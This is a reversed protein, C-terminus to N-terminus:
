ITDSEARNNIYSRALTIEIEQLGDIINKIDSLRTVRQEQVRWIIDRVKIGSRDSPSGSRVKTVVLFPDASENNRKKLSLGLSEDPARTVIVIEKNSVCHRDTHYTNFEYIIRRVECQATRQGQIAHKIDSVSHIKVSNIKLLLDFPQIGAILGPGPDGNPYERLRNVYLFTNWEEDEYDSTIEKLNLGLGLEDSITINFTYIKHKRRGKGDRGRTMRHVVFEMDTKGQVLSYCQKLTTVNYDDIALVVDNRNLGARLFPGARINKVVVFPKKDEDDSDSDEQNHRITRVEALEAGLKETPFARVVHLSVIEPYHGDCIATESEHEINTKREILLRVHTSQDLVRKLSALSTITHGNATVLLDGIKVGAKEAPGPSGDSRSRLANVALCKQDNKPGRTAAMLSIGLGIRHDRQVNVEILPQVNFVM